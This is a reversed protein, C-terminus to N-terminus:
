IFIIYYNLDINFINVNYKKIYYLVKAKEPNKNGIM